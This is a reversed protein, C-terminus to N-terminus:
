FEKEKFFFSISTKGYFSYDRRRNFPIIEDIYPLTKWLDVLHSPVMIALHSQPFFDKLTQVTPYTLISDGVWNVGRVVIRNIVDPLHNLKSKV